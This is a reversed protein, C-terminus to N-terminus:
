YPSSFVGGWWDTGAWECITVSSERRGSAGERKVAGAQFVVQIQAM